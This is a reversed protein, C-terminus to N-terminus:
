RRTEGACRGTRLARVTRIKASNVPFGSGEGSRAGLVNRNATFYTNRGKFHLDIATTAAEGGCSESNSRPATIRIESKARTQQFQWRVSWRPFLSAVQPDPSRHDLSRAGTRSEVM